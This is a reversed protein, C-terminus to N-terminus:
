RAVHCPFETKTTENSPGGRKNFPPAKGRDPASSLPPQRGSSPYVPHLQDMNQQRLIAACVVHWRGYVTTLRERNSFSSLIFSHLFSLHILWDTLSLNHVMPFLTDVLFTYIKSKIYLFAILLILVLYLLMTAFNNLTYALPAM